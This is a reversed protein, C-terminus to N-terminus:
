YKLSRKIRGQKDKQRWRARAGEVLLVVISETVPVRQRCFDPAIMANGSLFHLSPGIRM